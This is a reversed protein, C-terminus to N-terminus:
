SGNLLQLINGRLANDVKFAQTAAQSQLDSRAQEIVEQAMDIDEIKSQASLTNVMQQQLNTIDSTIGNQAAGVTSRRSSVRELAQNAVGLSRNATNQTRADIADTQLAAATMSPISFAQGGQLALELSGDLLKKTNFETNVATQTVQQNLQDIEFQVAQRDTDTLTGNASQVTLERMRQVMDQISGMASEATQLLSLEDQRNFIQRNLGRAMSELSKAVAMGAPDDSAAQIKKGSALRRISKGQASNAEDLRNAIKGSSKDIIM